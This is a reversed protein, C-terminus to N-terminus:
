ELLKWGIIVNCQKRNLCDDDTTFTATFIGDNMLINYSTVLLRM